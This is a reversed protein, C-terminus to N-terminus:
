DYQIINSAHEDLARAGGVSRTVALCPRQGHLAQSLRLPVQHDKTDKEVRWSDVLQDAPSATTGRPGASAKIVV